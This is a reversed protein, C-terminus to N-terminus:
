TLASFKASNNRRRTVLNMRYTIKAGYSDTGQVWALIEGGTVKNQWYPKDTAVIFLDDKRIMFLDSDRVDLMAEQRLGKVSAASVNGTDLSADGAFRTQAQLLKYLNEEQKYGYLMWDPGKDKGVKQWAKRRLEYIKALSLTTTTSDVTSKWVPYTAVAITGLDATGVINGLGNSENVTGAGRSGKYSVQHTTATTSVTAGDITITYNVEDVATVNRGSAVTTPAAATGIDVQAGVFLWGREIAQKGTVADLVVTNSTSTTGCVAIVGTGDTAIQRQLQRRMDSMGGEVETDLANVVSQVDSVTGDILEGEIAIQHHHHTYNWTAQTSGQNGATNLTAGGAPAATYGGNRSVHVPTVAQKGVQFRRTKEIESLLDDGQYLQEYLTDETWTQKLGANYAALNASAM